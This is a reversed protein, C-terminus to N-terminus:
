RAAVQVSGAAVSAAQQQVSSPPPSFNPQNAPSSIPVLYPRPLVQNVGPQLPISLGTDIAPADNTDPLLGLIPAMRAIVRGAIPAAVVGATSYGGTAATGHPDDLMMYVAYRPDNMPFVSVFASVNDHKLYGKGKGAVKESTGTKGGVFYGPM